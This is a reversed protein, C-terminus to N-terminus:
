QWFNCQTNKNSIKILIKKKINKYKKLPFFALSCAILPNYIIKDNKDNKVISFTVSNTGPM